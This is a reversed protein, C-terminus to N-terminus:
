SNVWPYPPDEPVVARTPLLGAEKSVDGGNAVLVDGPNSWPTKVKWYQLVARQCRVVAVPGYDAYSMPLGFYLIPDKEAFYRAKLAPNNDLISLHRRVVEGWPLGSDPSTDFPRPVNRTAELWGDKGADHLLDFVNVFYVRGVEPRWQFVVRQFAQCIFGNWSFRRSVPYGVAQVGGLRRFEDWFRIGDANTVSYGTGGAGGRGNTQTFFHGDPIDYDPPRAPLRRVLDATEGRVADMQRYFATGNCLTGGNRWPVPVNPPQCDRHACINPLDKDVFPGRGTPDIQWAGLKWALAKDLGLRADSPPAQGEYNGLVAIGVSGPNYDPGTNGNADPGYAAHGGQVGAGGWRGEYVNGQQDILYNYGIDGWGLVRAHYYYIARVTAAPNLDGNRTVTHHIIAKKIVHYQRPWIEQGNEDFRLREDAGWEARSIIRQGPAELPAMLGVKGNVIDKTSPGPGSNILEFNLVDADVGEGLGLKFRLYRADGTVILEGYQGATPGHAGIIVDYWPSWDSGDRSVQVALSRIRGSWFAGVADFTRDARYVDSIYESPSQGLISLGRAAARARLDRVTVRSSRVETVPPNEAHALGGLGVALGSGVALRLFDRRSLGM